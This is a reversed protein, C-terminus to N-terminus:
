RVNSGSPVMPGNPAQPDDISESRPNEKRIAPDGREHAGPMGPRVRSSGSSRPASLRPRDGRDVQAAAERGFEATAGEGEVQRVRLALIVIAAALAYIIWSSSPHSLIARALEGYKRERTKM